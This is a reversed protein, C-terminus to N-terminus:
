GLPGLMKAAVIALHAQGADVHRSVLDTHVEEDTMGYGFRVRAAKIIAEVRGSDIHAEARPFYIM